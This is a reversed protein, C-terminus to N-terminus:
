QEACMAHSTLARRSKVASREQLFKEGRMKGAEEEETVLGIGDTRRMDLSVRILMEAWISSKTMVQPIGGSGWVECDRALEKVARGQVRTISGSGKSGQGSFDQDEM